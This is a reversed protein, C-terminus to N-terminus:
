IFWEYIFKKDNNGKNGSEPKHEALPIKTPHLRYLDAGVSYFYLRKIAIQWM